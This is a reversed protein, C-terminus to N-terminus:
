ASGSRITVVAVTGQARFRVGAGACACDGPNLVTGDDLVAVDALALVVAVGEAVEHDGAKLDVTATAADRRTMVNLVSSPSTVGRPRVDAEGPFECVTYRPLAREDGDISLTLSDDLPLLLRTFGEFMSFRADDVM